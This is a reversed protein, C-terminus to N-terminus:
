GYLQRRLCLKDIIITAIEEISVSSTELLPIKENIFMLESTHVEHECQM